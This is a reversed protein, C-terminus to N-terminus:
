SRPPVIIECLPGSARSLKRDLSALPCDLAEALAVYWADYTTLNSRLAWVREAFPAFPFLELDLQLLDRFSSDAERTTIEGARELRRLINSTEVLALEPGALSNGVITSEGWKGASGSDVLIAVLLSADVVITM